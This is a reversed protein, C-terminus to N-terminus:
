QAEAKGSGCSMEADIKLQDRAGILSKTQVLGIRAVALGRRKTCHGSFIQHEARV